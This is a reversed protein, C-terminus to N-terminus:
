LRFQAFARAFRDTIRQIDKARHAVVSSDDAFVMESVLYKSMHTKAKSYSVNFLDADHWTQIYIGEQADKFVVELM